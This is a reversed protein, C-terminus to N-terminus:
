KKGITMSIMMINEALLNSSLSFDKDIADAAM